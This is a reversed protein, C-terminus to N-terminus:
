PSRYTVSDPQFTLDCDFWGESESKYQVWPSVSVLDMPQFDTFESSGVIDAFSRFTDTDLTLSLTDDNTVYAMHLEFFNAATNARESSCFNGPVWNTSNWYYGCFAWSYTAYKSLKVKTSNYDGTLFAPGSPDLAVLTQVKGLRSNLSKSIEYGVYSGWNHGVLCVKAGSTTVSKLLEGASAGVASIWKCGALGNSGDNDSAGVGWDVYLVQHDGTDTDVADGVNTLSDSGVWRTPDTQRGHIVVWNRAKSKSIPVDGKAKMRVPVQMNEGAVSASAFLYNGQAESNSTAIAGGALSTHYYTTNTTLVMPDPTGSTRVMVYYTGALTSPAMYRLAKAADTGKWSRDFSTTSPPSERKVYVDPSQIADLADVEFMGVNSPVNVGYYIESNLGMPSPLNTGGMYPITQIKADGTKTGYSVGSFASDGTLLIYWKGSSPYPVYVYEEPSGPHFSCADFTTTSAKKGYRVYLSVDGTGGTTRVYLGTCGGPPIDVTHRSQNGASGNVTSVSYGPMSWIATPRGSFTSSWGTAEEVRYVTANTAYTFLDSGLLLPCNGYFYVGKLNSCYYFSGSLFFTVTSPMTIKSLNLCYGFTYSDIYSLGEPITVNTMYVCGFCAYSGISAISSPFTMSTLSFCYYFAGSEVITLSSPLTIGTVYICELFCYQGIRTVSSPVTYKGSLGAPYQLLTTQNKNFLVGGTSSYVSNSTSVSISTLASCGGFAGPEIGTVYYPITVSTVKTCHYFAFDGINTIGVPITYTGSLGGPFAILSTQSKNLLVGGITSYFLNLPDVSINKLKSCNVFALAGINTISGPIVIAPLKTCGDFAHSGILTINTSLLINTVTENGEFASDGIATVPLGDITDPVTIVVSTGTYNTITVQGANTSIGWQAQVGSPLLVLLMGLAIPYLGRPLKKMQISNNM